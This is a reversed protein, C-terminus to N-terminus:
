EKHSNSPNEISPIVSSIEALMWGSEGNALEVQIWGSNTREVVFVASGAKVDKVLKASTSPNAYLCTNQMLINKKDRDDAVKAWIAFVNFIIFAVLSLVSLLSAVRMVVPHAVYCRLLYCVLFLAACVLGMWGWFSASRAVIFEVFKDFIYMETVQQDSIGLRNQCLDLNFKADVNAPNIYLAREYNLIAKVTDGSQCYANGLNYYVTSNPSESLLQEYLQIATDYQQNFYASDAAAKNASISFPLFLYLILTYIIKNM